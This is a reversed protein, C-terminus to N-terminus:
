PLLEKADKIVEGLDKGERKAMWNFAWRVLAWGPLGCSFAVGILAILGVFMEQTPLDQSVWRLLGFNIIVIAGGCLSSVLTSIIAILWEPESRPKKTLMVVAMSLGAAIGAGAGLAAVGSVGKAAAASAAAAGAEFAMAKAKM